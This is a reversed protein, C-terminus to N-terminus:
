IGTVESIWGRAALVRAYVGPNKKLACGLGWSVIGVLTHEKTGKNLVVLPGGSDGQCAAITFLFISLLIEETKRDDTSWFLITFIYECDKGGEDYIGACFMRPTIRFPYSKRCLRQKVKPVTVARLYRTSESSNQTKGWGSVLCMQGPRIDAASLKPLRIAKAGVDFTITRNLQILGFDFDPNHLGAYFKHLITRNVPYLIGGEFSDTSGVRVQFDRPSRKVLCQAATLIWENSIISGGCLHRNVFVLSVQWPIETINM